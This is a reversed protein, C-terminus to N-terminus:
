ALRAKLRRMVETQAQAAQATVFNMLLRPAAIHMIEQLTSGHDSAAFHYEVNLTVWGPSIVFTDIRENPKTLTHRVKIHNHYTIPGFHFEETTVYSLVRADNQKSEAVESLSILLPQLGIFNRPDALHAYVAEVPQEYAADFILTARV